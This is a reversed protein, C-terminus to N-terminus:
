IDVERVGGGTPDDCGGRGAVRVRWLRDAPGLERMGGTLRKLRALISSGAEPTPAFTAAMDMRWQGDVKRFAMEKPVSDADIPM